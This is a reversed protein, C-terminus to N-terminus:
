KGTVRIKQVPRAVDQHLRDEFTDCTVEGRDNPELRQGCDKLTLTVDFLTCNVRITIPLRFTIRAAYSPCEDDAGLGQVSTTIVTNISPLVNAEIKHSGGNQLRM